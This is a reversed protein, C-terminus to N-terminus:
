SAKFTARGESVVVNQTSPNQNVSESFDHISRVLIVSKKCSSKSLNTTDRQNKQAPPSPPLEPVNRILITSFVLM